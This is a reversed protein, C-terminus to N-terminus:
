HLVIRHLQTTRHGGAEEGEGLSQQFGTGAGERLITEAATMGITERVGEASLAVRDLFCVILVVQPHIRALACRAPQKAAIWM